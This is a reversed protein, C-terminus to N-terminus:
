PKRSGSPRRPGSRTAPGADRPAREAHLRAAMRDMLRVRDRPYHARSRDLRPRVRRIMGANARARQYEALFDRQRMLCLPVRAEIGPPSPQGSKRFEANAELLRGSPESRLTPFGCSDCEAMRALTHPRPANSQEIQPETGGAVEAIHRVVGRRVARRRSLTGRWCSTDVRAASTVSTLGEANGGRLRAHVRGTRFRRAERGTTGRLRPAAALDGSVPEPLTVPQLRRHRPERPRRPRRPQPGAALAVRSSPVATRGVTSAQEASTMTLAWLESLAWHWVRNGKEHIVHCDQVRDPLADVIGTLVEVAILDADESGIAPTTVPPAMRRAM